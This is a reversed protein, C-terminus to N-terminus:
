PWDPRFLGPTLGEMELLAAKYVLGGRFGALGGNAAVVRHCPVIVPLPNLGLANGVSRAARPAGMSGALASYSSLRGWPVRAAERLVRKQFPTKVDPAFPIDFLVPEGEFYRRFSDVTRAPLPDDVRGEPGFRVLDPTLDERVAQGSAPSLEAIVL